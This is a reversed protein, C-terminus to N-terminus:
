RFIYILIYMYPVVTTFTAAAQQTIDGDSTVTVSAIETTGQAVAHPIAATITVPATAFPALNTISAPTATHTFEVGPSIAVTFSDTFIGTNSVTLTYTVARGPLGFKFETAPGANVHFRYNLASYAQVLGYGYYQDWGATGLDLATNQLAARIKDTTDFQPLSALLAVVGSVHPTSMSTGSLYTYSGGLRTSYISSGPAALDVEPGYNSFYSRVNSADVSAVAIANPYAAPYLVPGSTNGTAAVVTVGHACAYNVADEMMTMPISGGLSLNIVRAGHDAAYVMARAVNSETGYGTSSLIKLAMLRAGWAIGAIGLGNNGVAAAIGAVHTGHGHDDQPSNTSSVFNWGRWDDVYGNGDDDV